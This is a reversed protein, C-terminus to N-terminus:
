KTKPCNKNEFQSSIQPSFFYLSLTKTWQLSTVEFKLVAHRAINYLECNNKLQQFSIFNQM